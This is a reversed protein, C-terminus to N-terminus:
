GGLGSPPIAATPTPRLAPLGAWSPHRQRAGGGCQPPSLVMATHTCVPRRGEPPSSFCCLARPGRIALIGRNPSLRFDQAQPSHQPRGEPVSRREQKTPHSLQAYDKCLLLPKKVGFFIFNFILIFSTNALICSEQLNLVCVLHESLPPPRRGARGLQLGPERRETAIGSHASTHPIDSCVQDGQSPSSPSACLLVAPKRLAQIM